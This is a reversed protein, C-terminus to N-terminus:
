PAQWCAAYLTKQWRIQACLLKFNHEHSHHHWLVCVRTWIHAHECLCHAATSGDIPRRPLTLAHQTGVRLRGCLFSLLGKLGNNWSTRLQILDFHLSISKVAEMLLDIFAIELYYSIHFNFFIIWLWVSRGCTAVFTVCKLCFINLLM